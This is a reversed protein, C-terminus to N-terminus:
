FRLCHRWIWYNVLLQLIVKYVIADWKCALQRWRRKRWLCLRREAIPLLLGLGRERVKVTTSM